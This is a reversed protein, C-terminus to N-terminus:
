EEGTWHHNPDIARRIDIHNGSVTALIHFDSGEQFCVSSSHVQHDGGWSEVCNEVDAIGRQHKPLEMGFLQRYTQHQEIVSSLSTYENTFMSM